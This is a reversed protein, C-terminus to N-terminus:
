SCNNNQLNTIQQQMTAITTQMTTITAQQTCMNDILTQFLNKVNLPQPLTICNHEITTLDLITRIDGILTYLDQTTEELSVCLEEQDIHSFIPLTEEYVVCAAYTKKCETKM